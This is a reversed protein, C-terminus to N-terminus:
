LTQEGASCPRHWRGWWSGRGPQTVEGSVWLNMTNCIESKFEHTNFWSQPFCCCFSTYMAKSLLSSLRQSPCLETDVGIDRDGSCLGPQVLSRHGFEKGIGPQRPSGGWGPTM